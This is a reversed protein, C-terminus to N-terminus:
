GAPLRREALSNAVTDVWRALHTVQQGRLLVGVEAHGGAGGPTFNASGLYAREDDALLVKFHIGLGSDEWSRVTVGRGSRVGAARLLGVADVNASSQQPARLSLARTVVLVEGGDTLLREVTPVLVAVFGTHLYPAAVVLRRRASAAVEALVQGTERPRAGDGHSAVLAALPQRLFSPVTLVLQWGSDEEVEVLLQAQGLRVGAAPSVRGQDDLVGAFTLTPGALAKDRVVDALSQTLSAGDAGAAVQRTLEGVAGYPDAAQALLGALPRVADLVTAM